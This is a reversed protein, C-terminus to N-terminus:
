VHIYLLIILKYSSFHNKASAYKIPNGPTWKIPPGDLESKQHTTRKTKLSELPCTNTWKKPMEGNKKIFIQNKVYNEIAALSYIIFDEFFV